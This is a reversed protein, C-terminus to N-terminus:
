NRGIEIEIFSVKQEKEEVEIEDERPRNPRLETGIQVHKVEWDDLLEEIAIQSVDIAKNTLMGRAKIIIRDFSKAQKAISFVYIKKDKNGIFVTYEDENVPNEEVM